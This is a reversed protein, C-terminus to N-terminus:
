YAMEVVVNKGRGTGRHHHDALTPDSAAQRAKRTLHTTLGSSQLARRAPLPEEMGLRRLASATWVRMGGSARKAYRLSSLLDFDM